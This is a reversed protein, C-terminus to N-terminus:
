GQEGFFFNTFMSLALPSSHYANGFFLAEVNIGKTSRNPFVAMGIGLPPSENSHNLLATHLEEEPGITLVHGASMKSTAFEKIQQFFTESQHKKLRPGQLPVRVAEM